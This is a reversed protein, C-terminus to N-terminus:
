QVRTYNSESIKTQSSTHSTRRRLRGARRLRQWARDDAQRLAAELRQSWNGGAALALGALPAAWRLSRPSVLTPHQNPAEGGEAMEGSVAQPEGQMQLNKSMPELFPNQDLPLAEIELPAESTPPRDRTGESDDSPDIVRGRRVYVEIVLRRSNNDTRVLVIQYRGDPLTAFLKNLDLLAEDKLRHTQLETGDLSLVVLELHFESTIAADGSAVRTDQSQLTQISSSAQDLLVQLPAPPTFDLRPVQPTTDIAVNTTEIGPNSIAVSELNSIGPQVVNATLADDDFIKVTIVIDASANLPDPPGTYFHELTFSVPSGPPVPGAHVTEVVFRQDPPLNLQDGWDVLVQFSDAGPDSFTLNLTTRGTPEVDTATIPQLTPNVNLVEVVIQKEVYDVGNVGAAFNASMDDDALRVTITYKNDVINDAANPTDNDAYFHGDSLMGITPIIVEPTLMDPHMGNVVSSPLKGTEITGDGWRIWYTFTESSPPNNGADTFGPDTFTGLDAITMTSAENVSFFDSTLTLTPAVNNVQIEIQQPTIQGGNDDTLTITVLYTGNDAYVHPKHQLLATTPGDILDSVRNADMLADSATGDGWDITVGIFTEQTAGSPNLPNDFGPDTIGLGLNFTSGGLDSLVFPLGEDVQLGGLNGTLSPPVNNVTVFFENIGVGGNDDHVTIKVQYVGDDAYIHTGPITGSSDLGVMGNMDDISMGVVPNRGDGWDIDYTFKENLPDAILPLVPGNPNLPNDFGPDTFTALDSFSITEGEFVTLSQGHPLLVTPDENEVHVIFQREVFHTGAVGTEFLGSMSFAGMDDDAVRVRVLYDGDDAFTHAGNFSALTSDMPGGVHDITASGTVPALPDLLLDRDGWDIWFRFTEDTGLALDRFGQDMIMGLDTISLETGENVMQDSIEALKPVVNNVAVMVSNGAPFTGDEDTAMATITFNANGDAYIHTVSAPNGAVVDVSDGWNITWQTITDTGPDFSALNLTYNSGEDVDPAGSLTLTPAVNNVIVKFMEEDFGGDDDTVRVTVTYTGNDAYTHMGGLAGSGMGQFVMAPDITGDDWDITATHTDLIGDDVFLGLPPGTVGSLDLLQGENVIVPIFDTDPVTLVPQVNVVGVDTMYDKFGGDKDIIRARVTQIDPGEVFYSAPVAQSDNTVSGAYTGDGVEFTGDNNFDYAYRFGAATDATSPDFQDMFFVTAGSGEDVPGNNALTATPAVNNVIVNFMEEDFGGDDDTVRVTVTYTGNDAYTHMGGLAGSGMGQFVMAPDITGDDWDITATHTDLIGDDVFLGLPPGTVGSLDLLQGENVIVPIFDTDPVTLVPQVNVVGVDTMYDKFGGDKDIIRARVTQIDPGEVFYSAPVAQSDNTVSGAYTGDGVEFTGDNNFDYAYRFGAATDATSPDFQDMFFVTAGSGEDVPGNNALTATPAVNNVMVDFTKTDSGGNNDSVTVTVTYPGDDAYTHMGGLAGAGPGAFITAMETPTVDGWDVTAMHMDALDPDVYLGLPPASGTGSLDLPQGENVTQDVAVVLVPEINAVMNAMVVASAGAGAGAQVALAYPNETQLADNASVDVPGTPQNADVYGSQGGGNGAGVGSWDFQLAEQGTDTPAPEPSDVVMTPSVVLSSLAADLVRRRELRRVRLPEVAFRRRAARRRRPRSGSFWSLRM